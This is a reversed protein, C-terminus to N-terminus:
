PPRAPRSGALAEKLDVGSSFWPRGDLRPAGTLLWVRISDDGEIIDLANNLETFFQRSLANAVAPRDIVLTVIYEATRELRLHPSEFQPLEVRWTKRRSSGPHQTWRSM